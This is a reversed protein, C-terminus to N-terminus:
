FPKVSNKKFMMLYDEHRAYYHGFSGNLDNESYCSSIELCVYGVFGGFIETLVVNM